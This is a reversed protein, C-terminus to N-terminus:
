YKLMNYNYVCVCVCFVHAPNAQRCHKTQEVDDTEFMCSTGGRKVM